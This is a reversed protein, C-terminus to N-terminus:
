CINVAENESITIDKTIHRQLNLISIKEAVETELSSFEPYSRLQEISINNTSAIELITSSIDARSAKINLETAIKLQLISDIQKYLIEIKEEKSNAKKIKNEISKLSIIDNNVVAIITNEAFLLGSLFILLLSLVRQM